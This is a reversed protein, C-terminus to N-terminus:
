SADDVNSYMQTGKDYTRKAIQIGVSNKFIFHIKKM